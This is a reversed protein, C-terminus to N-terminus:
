APSVEREIKRNGVRVQPLLLLIVAATAFADFVYTRTFIQVIDSIAAALGNLVLALWWAWSRYAWLGGAAAFWAASVVTMVISIAFMRIVLTSANPMGRVYTSRSLEGFQVATALSRSSGALLLLILVLVIPRERLVTLLIQPTTVGPGGPTRAALVRPRVVLAMLNAFALFFVAPRVVYHPPVRTSISAYGIVAGVVGAMNLVLVRKWLPWHDFNM